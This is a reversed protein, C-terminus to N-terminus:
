SRSSEKAEAESRAKRNTGSKRMKPTKVREKNPCVWYENGRPIGRPIGESYESLRGQVQFIEIGSWIRKPADLVTAVELDAM